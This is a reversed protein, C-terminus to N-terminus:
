RRSARNEREQGRLEALLRLCATATRLYVEEMPTGVLSEATTGPWMTRTWPHRTEALRPVIPGMADITM